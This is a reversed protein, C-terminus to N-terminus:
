EPNGMFGKIFFMFYILVLDKIKNIDNEKRVIELLGEMFGASLAETLINVDTSKFYKMNRLHFVLNGKVVNLIDKRAKEYRTGESGDIIILFEKRYDAFISIVDDLMTKITEPHIHEYSPDKAHKHHIFFQKFEKYAPSIVAFFLDEKDNFYKYLNGATLDCSVAIVRMSSNKYGKRLFEDRARSIIKHKVSERLIQM